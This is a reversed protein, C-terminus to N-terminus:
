PRAHWIPLLPSSRAERLIRTLSRRQEPFAQTTDFAPGVAPEPRIPGLNGRHVTPLVRSSRLNTGSWIAFPPGVGPGSRLHFGLSATM